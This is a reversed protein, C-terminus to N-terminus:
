ELFVQSAGVIATENYADVSVGFYSGSKTDHATLIGYQTWSNRSGNFIYVAGASRLPSSIFISSSLIKMDYGFDRQLTYGSRSLYDSPLLKAQQTWINQNNSFDNTYVHVGISLGNYGSFLTKEVQGTILVPSTSNYDIVLETLTSQFSWTSAFSLSISQVLLTIIHIIKLDEFNLPM